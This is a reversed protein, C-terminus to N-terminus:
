ESDVDRINMERFQRTLWGPDEHTQSLLGTAVFRTPKFLQTKGDAL